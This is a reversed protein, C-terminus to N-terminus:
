HYMSTRHPPAPPAPIPLTSLHLQSSYLLVILLLYNPAQTELMRKLKNSNARSLATLINPITWECSRTAKPRVYTTQEQLDEMLKLLHLIRRNSQIGQSGQWKVTDTPSQEQVTGAGLTIFVSGLDPSIDALLLDTQWSHSCSRWSWVLRWHNDLPIYLCLHRCWHRGDSLPHSRLDM